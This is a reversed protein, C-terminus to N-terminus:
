SGDEWSRLDPSLPASLVAVHTLCKPCRRCQLTREDREDNGWHQWLLAWVRIGVLPERWREEGFQAALERTSGLRVWVLEPEPELEKRRDLRVEAAVAWRTM